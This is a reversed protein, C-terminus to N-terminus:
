NTIPWYVGFRLQGAPLPYDAILENGQMLETGSTMNEYRLYVTATRIKGEAVVDLMYSAQVTRRDKSPLVLLGTPAHLTRSTMASWSRGRVFANLHLDGTFLIARFGVQASLTWKPLSLEAGYKSRGTQTIGSRFIAYVGQSKKAQFGTQIGVGKTTYSDSIVQISDVAFEWYDTVDWALTIFGYPIINLKGIQLRVASNMQLVRAPDTSDNVLFDGWERIPNSEATYNLENVLKVNSLTTEVQLYGRPSWIGSQNRLAGQVVLHGSQLQLSDELQVEMFSRRNGLPYASSIPIQQTYADIRAQIRHQDSVFNRLLSAGVRIATAETEMFSLSQTSLYVSTTVLNTKLTSLFDNRVTRRTRGQGAVQAILRNYRTEDSGLVGSHAGLRRQTHLYLLEISWQVHQYRTRLLAKRQRELRSEPYDGDDSAGAYAFLGQLNGPQDFLRGRQQAHFATVRQLNHDGAQYHIETQPRESNITRLEAQVGTLGGPLGPDVKPPRLLATPLLDYRPRGTLLDDFPIAGFHLQVSQPNLGYVSWGSPWALTNFDYVFSGPTRSLVNTIDHDASLHAMGLTDDHARFTMLSRASDAPTQASTVPVNFIVLCLLVARLSSM